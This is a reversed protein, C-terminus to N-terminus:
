FLYGLSIMLNKNKWDLGEADIVNVLGWDYGISLQYKQSFEVGAKLGLGFDFRDFAGDGFYDISEGAAKMKGFLGIGFYPGVNGFIAFKDTFAHKYGVHVPIELYYPQLKLTTPEGTDEIEADMKGGKTTLLAGFDLYLGPVKQSFVWEGKVGAHFGVRPDFVDSVAFDYNSVNMGAVVGWRLSQANVSVAGVVMLAVAVLWTKVNSNRKM